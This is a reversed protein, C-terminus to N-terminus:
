EGKNTPPKQMMRRLGKFGRDDVPKGKLADINAELANIRQRQKENTDKLKANAEESAALKRRMRENEELTSALREQVYTDTLGGGESLVDGALRMIAVLKDATTWQEEPEPTAVPQEPVVSLAPQPDKWPKSPLKIDPVMVLKVVRRGNKGLTRELVGLESDMWGLRFGLQKIDDEWGKEELMRQITATVNSGEITGGEEKLLWLIWHTLDKVHRHTHEPWVIDM